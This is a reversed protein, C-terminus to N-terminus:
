AAAAAGKEQYAKVVAALSRGPEALTRAVKSAPALLTGLLKARMVPLPPLEALAKIESTSITQAGLYGGKIKFIESNHTVDSVVKALAPADQLAFGVATTGELYTEPMDMGANKIALEILTNKVIHVENGAERAKARLSDIDKMTMGKYEMLFIGQSKNVWTQYQELMETKAKKSFAM